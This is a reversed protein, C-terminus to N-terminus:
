NIAAIYVTLTGSTVPNTDGRGARPLKAVVIAPHDDLLVIDTTCVTPRDVAVYLITRRWEALDLYNTIVRPVILGGWRAGMVNIEAVGGIDRVPDHM